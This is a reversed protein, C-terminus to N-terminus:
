ATSVEAVTTGAVRVRGDAADELVLESRGSAELAPLLELQFHPSAGPIKRELLAYAATIDGRLQPRAAAAAALAVLAAAVRTAMAARFPLSSVPEVPGNDVFVLGGLLLQKCVTKRIGEKNEQQLDICATRSNQKNITRVRAYSIVYVCVCM